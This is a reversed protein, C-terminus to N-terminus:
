SEFNLDFEYSYPAHAQSTNGSSDKGTLKKVSHYKLPPENPLLLKKLNTVQSDENDKEFPALWELMRDTEFHAPIRSENKKPNNHLRSMFGTPSTTIITCTDFVEGTSQDTWEEYLGALALSEGDKRSIYHPINLKGVHHYEYFGDVLILCRKKRAARKFTPKEFISEGRANFTNRSIKIADEKSRCWYPILGWSKFSINRDMDICLLKPSAFANVFHFEPPNLYQELKKAIYKADELFGYKLCWKLQRELQYRVNYCM